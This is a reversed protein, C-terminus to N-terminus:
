KQGGLQILRPMQGHSVTGLHRAHAFSHEHQAQTPYANRNEVLRRLLQFFVQSIGSRARYRPREASAGAQPRSRM